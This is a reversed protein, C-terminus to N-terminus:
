AEPVNAGAAGPGSANYSYTRVGLQATGDDTLVRGALSKIFSFSAMVGGAAMSQWLTSEGLDIWGLGDLTPVALAGQVFTWALREITDKWWALDRM